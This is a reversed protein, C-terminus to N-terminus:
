GAVRRLRDPYDTIIGDVGADLLTRMASEDNVTWPVVRMGLDRATQIMDPNVFLFYPSYIAPVFGLTDVMAQVDGSTGDLLVLIVEPDIARMAQLTRVDFSQVTARDLLNLRRLEDYVLQAFTAPDPQHTPEWSPRSKTEINYWPLPVGRVMAAGDVAEVVETLTPKPAPMLRQEPFRPNPRSGCDYRRVEAYPLQFISSTDAPAVDQGDPRRCIVDSFWPEHSVVLQSDASVALDLEMTTMGYRLAELFSPVTNEPMLGRAGRHGQLDPVPQAAACVALCCLLLIRM